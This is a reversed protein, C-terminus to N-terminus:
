GEEEVIYTVRDIFPAIKEAFALAQQIDEESEGEWVEGDALWGMLPEGGVYDQTFNNTFMNSVQEMVMKVYKKRM